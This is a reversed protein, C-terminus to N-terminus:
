MARSLYAENAVSLEAAKSFFIKHDDTKLVQLLAEMRIFIELDKTPILKGAHMDATMKSELNEVQMEIEQIKEQESIKLM